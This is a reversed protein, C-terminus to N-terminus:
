PRRAAIPERHSVALVLRALGSGRSLFGHRRASVVVIDGDVLALGHDAEESEEAGPLSWQHVRPATQWARIIHCVDHDEDRHVGLAEMLQGLDQGRTFARRGAAWHADTQNAGTFETGHNQGLGLMDFAHMDDAYGIQIHFLRM